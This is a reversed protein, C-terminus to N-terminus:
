TKKLLKVMDEFNNEHLNQLLEFQEAIKEFCNRKNQCEDYIILRMRTRTIATYLLKLENKLEEHKMMDITKLKRSKTLLKLKVRGDKKIINSEFLINETTNNNIEDDVEFKSVITFFLIIPIENFYICDYKFKFDEETM